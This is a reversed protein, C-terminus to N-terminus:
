VENAARIKKPIKVSKSRLFKEIENFFWGTLYAQAEDNHRDLQQGTHIFVANVLHVVEHAILDGQVDEDISIYYQSIGRVYNSWVFAGYNEVNDKIGYRDKVPQMGGETIIIHLWGYYIPVKVKKVRM